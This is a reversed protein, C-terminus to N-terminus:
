RLGKKIEKLLVPIDQLVEQKVEKEPNGKRFGTIVLGTILRFLRISKVEPPVTKYLESALSSAEGLKRALQMTKIFEPSTKVRKATLSSKSRIYGKGNMIYGTM